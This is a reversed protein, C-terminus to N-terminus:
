KLIDFLSTQGNPRRKPAEPPPKSVARRPPLETASGGFMICNGTTQTGRFVMFPYGREIAHQKERAFNAEDFLGVHRAHRELDHWHYDSPPDAM